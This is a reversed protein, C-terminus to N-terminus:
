KVIPLKAEIWQKIGHTVNYVNSYGLNSSLYNALIASRNGTRCILIIKDDKKTFSNLDDFFNPMLKGIKNIATLKISGDVVGTSAWEDKRRIDFIKIGKDISSQLESNSINKYKPLEVDLLSVEFKLAANPPIINGAGKKGYALHPPINLIRTEGVKMGKIGADWGPIVQGIGITFKLPAGRDLSSDFKTGNELWGSYHVSLLSHLVAVPGTGEKVIIVELNEKASSDSSCTAILLIPMSIRIIFDRFTKNM